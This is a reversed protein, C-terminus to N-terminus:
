STSPPPSSPGVRAIIGMSNEVSVFQPGSEQLDRETRGLCPLIISTENLTRATSSPRSMCPRADVCRRPPGPTDPAAGALNGGMAVFVDVGDFMAELAEVVNYGHAKPAEFGGSLQPRVFAESPRDWIGMTRDGQVNSHGRVPCAGAGPKGINGKLLLLNLCEQINMVGHRHQTLGM